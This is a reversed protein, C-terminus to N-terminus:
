PAEYRTAIAALLREAEAELAEARAAACGVLFAARRRTRGADVVERRTDAMEHDAALVLATVEHVAGVVIELAEIADYLLRPDGTPESSPAGTSPAGTDTGTTAGAGAHEAGTAGTSPDPSRPPPSPPLQRPM